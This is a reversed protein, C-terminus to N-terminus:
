LVAVKDMMSLFRIMRALALVLGLLRCVKCIPHPFRIRSRSGPVKFPISLLRSCGPVLGFSRHRRRRILLMPSGSSVLLSIAEEICKFSMTSVTMTLFKFRLSSRRSAILLCSLEKPMFQILNSTISWIPVLALAVQHFAKL